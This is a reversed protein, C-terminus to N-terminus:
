LCVRIIKLWDQFVDDWSRSRNFRLIRERYAAYFSPNLLERLKAAIDSEDKPDVFLGVDKLVEHFGTERTLLFPTGLSLCDLIVNPSVDSLSPLLFARASAIRKMLESHPMSPIIAIRDGARSERIIKEIEQKRPGEGILELRWQNDGLALFARILRPLNKIRIFRGAFILTQNREPEGIYVKPWPSDIIATQEPRLPYGLAFVSKRWESSFVIRDARCFVWRAIKYLWREKPTLRDFSFGEYFQRLTLEEGGRGIYSEWIRGGELRVIMPRGRMRCAAALPAGVGIPDLALAVDSSGLFRFALWFYYFQRLGPPLKLSVAYFAVGNVTERRRESGYALLTVNHGKESFHKSLNDAYTGPGGIDPPFMPTAILIRLPQLNRRFLAGFEPAIRDWSFHEEVMKRGNAVLRSALAPDRILSIIKSALDAPDDVAAFLGTEGDRVIDMIGGVPTGIIPLGSALAEVFANGMGESRSPRAFIHAEALYGSLKEHPVGGFFVCAQELGLSKVLNELSKREPGDGIIHCQVGPLFKKVKVLARILTDVGNKPVLRSVTIVIPRLIEPKRPRLAFFWGIDVGNPLLEIKGQYGFQRALGALHRSIATVTDARRLMFIFARRITGWRGRRLREDGYGYQISFVFPLRAFVIKLFSAAFAGASIDVGWLIIRALAINQRRIERCFAIIGLLPLLWKDFPSGFGVRIITGEPRSECKPLSSRMRATIVFFRFENKLREAIEQIAIEAGGILPYYATTFVFIVPKGNKEM